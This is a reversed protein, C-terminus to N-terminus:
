VTICTYQVCLSGLLEVATLTETLCNVCCVGLLLELFNLDVQEAAGHTHPKAFYVAHPELNVSSACVSATYRVLITSKTGATQLNRSRVNM